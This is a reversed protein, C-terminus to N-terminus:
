AAKRTQLLHHMAKKEQLSLEFVQNVSVIMLSILFTGWMAGVMIVCRGYVTYPTTDGYGVTTLTIVVCWLSQFYNNFDRYGVAYYYPQEFIRLIYALVVISTMFTLFIATFPSEKIYCKYTFRVGASVGYNKAVKKAYTDTYISYNFFARVIFYVRIWMFVTIFDSLLYYITIKDQRDQVDFASSTIIPNYYPIPNILFICVELWFSTRFSRRFTVLANSAIGTQKDDFNSIVNQRMEKPLDNNVWSAKLSHRKILTLIGVFSV